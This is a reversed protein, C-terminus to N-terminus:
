ATAGEYAAGHSPAFWKYSIWLHERVGFRLGHERAADRWLRYQESGEIYMNRAYWDGDEIASQPGWHSWIGFKADRFWDPVRYSRLSTRTPQYPVVPAGRQARSLRAIRLSSCTGATLRCADRRSMFM